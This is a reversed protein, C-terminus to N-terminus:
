NFRDAHPIDKKPKWGKMDLFIVPYKGMHELADEDELIKMGQFLETQDQRDIRFFEHAM